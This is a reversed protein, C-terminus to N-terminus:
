HPPKPDYRTPKAENIIARGTESPKSSNQEFGRGYDNNIVITAIKRYLRQRLRTKGHCPSESLIRPRLEPGIAM